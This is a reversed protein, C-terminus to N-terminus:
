FQGAQGALDGIRLTKFRGRLNGRATDRLDDMSVSMALAVLALFLAAGGLTLWFALRV